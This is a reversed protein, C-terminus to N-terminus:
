VHGRGIETPNKDNERYVKDLANKVQAAIANRLHHHHGHYLDCEIHDFVKRGSRPAGAAEAAGAMRSCKGWM